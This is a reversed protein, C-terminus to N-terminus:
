LKPVSYKSSIYHCGDVSFFDHMSYDVEEGPFVIAWSDDVNVSFAHLHRNFKQCFCLRGCLLWSDRFNLIYKVKCYVPIDEEEVVSLLMCDEVTYTRHDFRLKKTITILDDPLIDIGLRTAITARLESPLSTIPVTKTSALSCPESSLIDDSLYEWCQRMQHRKAMTSTVNVFNGLASVVSKFYQHKAEFRMCWLLRLPGFMAILRPYHIMFHHKPTISREGFLSVYHQLFQVILDNLHSLMSKNVSPAFLLDTVDRLLLYAEWVEDGQEICQGLIQPLLIFLQWKQSASGVISGSAGSIKSTLTNPRDAVSKSAEMLKSNFLDVTIVKEKVSKQIVKLLLHPVVGELLDHMIDPAFVSAVDFYPLDLFKCRHLVGYVRSNAECADLAELHYSHVAKNRSLFRSEDFSDSSRIEDYNAMCFRCIRGENFHRQFGALAHASLNDGSITALAAKFNYSCGDADVNVGESALLNLEDILPKLIADYHHDFDKLYQYRVLLCLNIFKMESWYKSELNGIFYYIALVKHKGRKSGIPNCVEFEDLYFHLRIADRHKSFFSHDAYVSGDVFSTMRDSNPLVDQRSLIHHRIDENLLMHKLVSTVSVYSFVAPKGSAKTALVIESPMALMFNSEVFKNLKYDSDIDSFVNSFMPTNSSLFQAAESQPAISQEECIEMFLSQYTEHMHTVMSQMEDVLNQQVTAPLIHKERLKLICRVVHKQFDSVADAVVKTVSVNTSSAPVINDTAEEDFDMADNDLDMAKDDDINGITVLKHKRRVHRVFGRVTTMTDRCKQINCTVFFNPANEHFVRLHKTYRKFTTKVQGCAVCTFSM